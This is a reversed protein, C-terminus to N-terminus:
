QQGWDETPSLLLDRVADVGQREGGLKELTHPDPRKVDTIRWQTTRGDLRHEFLEGICPMASEYTVGFQAAALNGGNTALEAADFLRLLIIM